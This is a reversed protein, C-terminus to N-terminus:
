CRTRSRHNVKECAWEFRQSTPLLGNTGETNEFIYVRSVGAASCRLNSLKRAIAQFPICLYLLPPWEISVAISTISFIKLSSMIKPSDVFFLFAMFYQSSM